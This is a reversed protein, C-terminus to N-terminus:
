TAHLCVRAMRAVLRVRVQERLNKKIADAEEYDGDKRAIARKKLMETVAGEDIGAEGLDKDGDGEIRMHTPFVGGDARWGKLRDNVFM